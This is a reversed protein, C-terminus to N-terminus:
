LFDTINNQSALNAQQLRAAFYASTFKNFNPTTIYVGRNSTESEAEWIKTNLPSLM